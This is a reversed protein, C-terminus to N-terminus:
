VVPFEDEVLRNQQVRGDVYYGMEQRMQAWAARQDATAAAADLYVFDESGGRGNAADLGLGIITKKDPAAIAAAQCRLLLEMSRFRRYEDYPEAVDHDKVLVAYALDPDSQSPIISGISGGVAAEARALIARSIVRRQFRDEMALRRLVRELQETAIESGAVAHGEIISATLREIYRDWLDGQRNLAQAAIFQPHAALADWTGAPVVLPRGAEPFARENTLYVALLDKESAASQLGGAAILAEKAQLYATFDRATSLAPLVVAMSDEDFVHVWGQCGAVQGVAYPREDGQVGPVIELGTLGGRDRAATTAAPAVCIRHVRLRNAPPLPIPLPTECRVDLYVRDPSARIWNEATRLQRASEAVASRYYRRWAVGEDPADPYAGGKDSFLLVDDGFVVLLDTLERNPERFTNAYTWLKLFSRDAIERLIRESPTLGDAREFRPPIM